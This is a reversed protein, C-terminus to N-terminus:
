PPQSPTSHRGSGSQQVADTGGTNAEMEVALRYPHGGGARRGGGQEGLHPLVALGDDSDQAGCSEFAEGCGGEDGEGAALGVRDLVGLAGGMESCKARRQAGILGAAGVLGGVGVRQAIAEQLTEM